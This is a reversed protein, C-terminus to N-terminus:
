ASKRAAGAQAGASCFRTMRDIEDGGSRERAAVDALQDYFRAMARYIDRGHTDGDIFRAIEDMEAVWRYAKPYMRPVQRSLWALFQPQSEALERRLAEDCGARDAALMMAAGLATFGKTIGAYSMKLASAAGIPGDVTRVDLGYASLRMVERAGEGAVYLKTHGTATASPPPGIIGGDVYNCGTATLIAGIREATAPAVANCDVYVPKKRSRALAPALREALAAADGPPVVSLLVDAEGVLADDSAAPALGAREARRASAQSRGQLSTLVRAGRENLRAGIAAGMEGPAIIAIIDTLITERAIVAFM